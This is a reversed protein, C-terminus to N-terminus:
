SSGNVSVLSYGKAGIYNKEFAYILM